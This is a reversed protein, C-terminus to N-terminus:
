GTTATPITTVQAPFVRPLCITGGQRVEFGVEVLVIRRLQDLLAWPTLGPGAKARCKKLYVWLCYGLFVVLLHAQVRSETWHWIPRVNLDSKLPRFAAEAETM